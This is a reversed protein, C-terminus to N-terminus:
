KRCKRGCGGCGGECEEKKFGRRVKWAIFLAAVAGIIVSAVVNFDM